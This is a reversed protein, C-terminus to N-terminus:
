GSVSGTDSFAPINPNRQKIEEILERLVRETVELYRLLQYSTM